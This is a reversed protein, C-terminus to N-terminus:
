EQAQVCALQAQNLIVHSHHDAQGTARDPSREKWDM